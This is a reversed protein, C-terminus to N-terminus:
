FDPKSNLNGIVNLINRYDTSYQDMALMSANFAAYWSLGNCRVALCFNDLFIMLAVRQVLM